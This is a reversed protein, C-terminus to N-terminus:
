NEYFDVFSFNTSGRGGQWGRQGGGAVGLLLDSQSLAATHQLSSEPQM